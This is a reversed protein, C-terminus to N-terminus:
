GGAAAGALALKMVEALQDGTDVKVENPFMGIHRGELKLTEPKNWLRFEVEHVVEVNDGSGRTRTKYKVGSVARMVESPRGPAPALRGNEDVVFDDVCSHALLVLEGLVQDQTVQVRASRAALVADIAGRVEVHKLLRQGQSYATRKSYGSREAAKTANLDVPYEEVFRAQKANL